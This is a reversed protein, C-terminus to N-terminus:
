KKEKLSRIAEQIVPDALNSDAALAKRIIKVTMKADADDPLLERLCFSAQGLAAELEAEKAEAKLMRRDAIELAAELEAVKQEAAVRMATEAEDLETQYRLADRLRDIKADRQAIIQEAATRLADYDTKVIMEVKSHNDTFTPPEDPLNTEATM